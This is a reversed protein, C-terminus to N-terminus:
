IASQPNRIPSQRNAPPLIAVHVDADEARAVDAVGVCAGGARNSVGGDDGDMAAVRSAGLAECGGVAGRGVRIELRKERVLGHVQHGDAAGRAQVRRLADGRTAAAQVHQNFFGNVDGDLAGIGENLRSVGGPHPEAHEELVVHLRVQDPQM